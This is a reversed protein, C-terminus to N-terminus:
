GCAKGRKCSVEAGGQVTEIEFLAHRNAMPTVSSIVPTGLTSKPASSALSYGPSARLRKGLVLESTRATLLLSASQACARSFDAGPKEEGTIHQDIIEEPKRHFESILLVLEPLAWTQSCLM